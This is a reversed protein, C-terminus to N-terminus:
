FLEAGEDEDETLPEQPTDEQLRPNKRRNTHWPDSSITFNELNGKLQLALKELDDKSVAHLQSDELTEKNLEGLGQVAHSAQEASSIQQQASSGISSASHEIRAIIEVLQQLRETVEKSLGQNERSSEASETVVGLMDNAYGQIKELMQQVEDTADRTRAALSRVEDAVVAFGRGQEGARAAEIAANLALLNTQEAISNIVEVITTIQDTEQKLEAMATEAHTMHESLRNVVTNTSTMSRQCDQVSTNGETSDQTIAVSQEAIDNSQSSIADMAEMMSSSYNAQLLAKQTTNSYSDALEQSMPILRAASSMANTVIDETRKLVRTLEETAPQLESPANDFRTTLDLNERDVIESVADHFRNTRAQSVQNAGWYLFGLLMADKVLLLWINNFFSVLLIDSILVVVAAIIYLQNRRM